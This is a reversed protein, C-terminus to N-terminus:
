LRSGAKEPWRSTPVYAHSIGLLITSGSLISSEVAETYLISALGSGPAYFKDILLATERARRMM